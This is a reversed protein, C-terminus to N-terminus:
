ISYIDAKSCLWTVQISKKSLLKLIFSYRQKRQSSLKITEGQVCLVLKLAFTEFPESCLLPCNQVNETSLVSSIIASSKQYVAFWPVWSLDVNGINLLCHKPLHMTKMWEPQLSNGKSNSLQYNYKILLSYIKKVGVQSCFSWWLSSGGGVNPDNGM